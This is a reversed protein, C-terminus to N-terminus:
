LNECLYLMAFMIPIHKPFLFFNGNEVLVLLRDSTPGFTTQTNPLVLNLKKKTLNFVTDLLFIYSIAFSINPYSLLCTELSTFNLKIIPLQSM